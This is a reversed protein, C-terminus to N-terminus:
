QYVKRDSGYGCRILDIEGTKKDICVFDMVTENSTGVKRVSAPTDYPTNIASTICVIPVQLDGTVVQDYHGHGCFIALLKGNYNNFDCEVSVDAWEGEQLYDGKVSHTYSGSYSSKNCYAEIIGRFVNYERIDYAYSQNTKATPPVHLAIVVSYGAEVNLAKEILWDLQEQGFGAAKQMSYKATGDSNLEYEAWHSNLCIFRTKQLEYDLYFYSSDEGFVRRPDQLQPDFLLHNVEEPPLGYVYYIGNGDKGFWADHNGKIAMVKNQGIPSLYDWAKQYATVATEKTIGSDATLMDGTMLFLPVNCEDMVTAAVSGIYKECETGKPYIHMDSCWGFCLLDDGKKSQIAKIKNITDDVEDRWYDPLDYKEYDTEKTVIEGIGNSNDFEALYRQIMTADSINLGSEPNAAHMSILGYIDNDYDSLVRQILTVDRIDVDGNGDADGRLFKIKADSFILSLLSLSLCLLVIIIDRAIRKM